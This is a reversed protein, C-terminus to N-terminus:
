KSANSKEAPQELLAVLRKADIMSEQAKQRALQIMGALLQRVDSVGLTSPAEALREDLFQLVDTEAVHKCGNLLAWALDGFHSKSPKTREDYAVTYFTLMAIAQVQDRQSLKAMDSLFKDEASPPPPPTTWSM